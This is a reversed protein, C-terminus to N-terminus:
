FDVNKFNHKEHYFVNKYKKNFEQNTQEIIISMENSTLIELDTNKDLSNILM